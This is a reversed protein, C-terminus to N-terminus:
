WATSTGATAATIAEFRLWGNLKRDLGNLYNNWVALTGFCIFYFSTCPLREHNRTKAM